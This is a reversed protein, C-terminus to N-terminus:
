QILKRRRGALWRKRYRRRDDEAMGGWIGSEQNTRVAYELCDARVECIACIAKAAEIQRMALVNSGVPFFNVDARDFCAAQARWPEIFDSAELPPAPEREDGAM